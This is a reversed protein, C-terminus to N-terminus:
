VTSGELSISFDTHQTYAFRLNNRYAKFAADKWREAMRITYRLCTEFCNRVCSSHLRSLKLSKLAVSILSILVYIHKLVSIKSVAFCLHFTSNRKWLILLLCLYIFNTNIYNCCSPRISCLASVDCTYSIAWTHTHLQSHQLIVFLSPPPTVATKRHVNGMEGTSAPTKSNVPNLWWRANVLNCVIIHIQLLNILQCDQLNSDAQWASQDEWDTEQRQHTRVYTPYSIWTCRSWTSFNWILLSWWPDTILLKFFM